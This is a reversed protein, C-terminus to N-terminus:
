FVFTGIYLTISKVFEILWAAGHDYWVRLTNRSDVMSLLPAAFHKVFCAGVM